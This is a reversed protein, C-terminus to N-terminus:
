RAGRLARLAAAWAKQATPWACTLPQGDINIRYYRPPDVRLYQGWGYLQCRPDVILVREKPSYHLNM